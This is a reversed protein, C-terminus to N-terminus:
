RAKTRVLEWAGVALAIVGASVLGLVALQGGGFAHPGAILGNAVMLLGGLVLIAGVIRTRSWM